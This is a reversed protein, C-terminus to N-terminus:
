HAPGPVRPRRGAQGAPGAAGPEAADGPGARGAGPQAPRDLRVARADGPAVVLSSEADALSAPRPGRAPRSPHHVPPYSERVTVKIHLGPPVSWRAGGLVLSPAM